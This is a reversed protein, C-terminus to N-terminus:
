KRGRLTWLSYIAAFGIIATVVTLATAHEMGRIYAAAPGTEVRGTAVSM